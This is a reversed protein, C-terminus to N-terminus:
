DKNPSSSRTAEFYVNCVSFVITNHSKVLVRDGPIEVTSGTISAAPHRIAIQVVSEGMIGLQRFTVTSGNTGGGSNEDQFQKASITTTENAPNKTITKHWRFVNSSYELQTGILMKAEKEGWCSITRTPLARRVIWVGWLTRPLSQAPASSGLVLFFVALYLGRKM